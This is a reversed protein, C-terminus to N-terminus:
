MESKDSKCTTSIKNHLPEKSSCNGSGCCSSPRQKYKSFHLSLLMIGIAILFFVFILFFQIM